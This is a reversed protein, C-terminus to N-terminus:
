TQAGQSLDRILRDRLAVTEGTPEADLAESLTAELERYVRAIDTARGLKGYASMLQRYMHEAYPELSIARALFRAVEEIDGDSECAEALATLADMLRGRFHDRLESAWEYYIGDLFEGRCLDVAGNLAERVGDGKAAQALFRDFRWVDVDFDASEVRYIDGSKDIFKATPSLNIASPREFWAIAARRNRASFVTSDCTPLM